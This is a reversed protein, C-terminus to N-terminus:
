EKIWNWLGFDKLCGKLQRERVTPEEKFYMSFRALNGRRWAGGDRM